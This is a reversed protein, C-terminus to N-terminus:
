GGEEGDPREDDDEDDGSPLVERLTFRFAAGLDPRGEVRDEVRITGGYREILTRVIFLGLGDGCGDVRGREFRHFISEKMGDPIGPGTDEVSVLVSEGDYEEVRIAVRVGSGGFRVANRILNTFVEPLLDDGWIQCSAGGFEITVGPFAAAEKRIVAGLDVPGIDPSDHHIRRITTVNGIIEASKRISSQIKRAYPAAEEGLTELLLDAYLSSVNEANKIDHTMIDLYLNAERNAAELKKHLMGKLIGSGIEKGITELLTREERSFSEKERSAVYVAGVVVSEAILPICALASVELEELLGAEIANQDSQREIYRPQGAIFIFNFPWHHVRLIRNQPMYAPPVGRQYQLLARKREADLMYVIGVHLGMLELTKDLSEELLEALSLSSASVSIIRNLVMLQKNRVRIEEEARKRETIDMVSAISGRFRGSGDTFPSVFVLATIRSGEKRVFDCEFQERSGGKLRRLRDQMVAVCSPPLYSYLPTGIMEEPAYDLMEAMRPNVFSTCADPDSVWIGESLSEVVFRYKQESRRLAEEARKRGTIDLIGAICGGFAGAADVVPSTVALVHVCRGDSHRLDLEFERGQDIGRCFPNKAAPDPVGAPDFFGAVPLGVLRAAPYGLIEEMRPNAFTIIGARDVTLVGENLNEVLRRYMAESHQLAREAQVREKAYRVARCLLEADMKDKVLYDQAGRQMARLVAPDDGEATLVIIPTDPAAERLRDFVATGRGGPLDLNFLVVGAGGESIAALGNEPHECHVLEIESGCEGLMERIRRSDGPSEGILLVRLPGSLTESMYLARYGDADATLESIGASTPQRRTERDDAM